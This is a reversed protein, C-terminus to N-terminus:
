PLPLTLKDAAGYLYRYFALNEQVLELYLRTEAFDVMELMLDPDGGSAELWRAANGPGGNYAALTAPAHGDFRELQTRLYHAGFRLSVEPRKLDEYDFDNMGLERAIADATPPIVQTLGIAGAPSVADTQFFSEQRVVSLLLFPSVSSAQAAESALRSYRSPYVLRLLAAPADEQGGRISMAALATTRVLGFGGAARAIRYLRWASTEGDILAQLEAAGEDLLGARLLEMLRPWEPSAEFEEAAFPDEEGFRETLWAELGAWDPGAPVLEPPDPGVAAGDLVARARLGFYDHPALDVASQLHAAASQPDGLLRAARAMWYHARAQKRPIANTELHQGWINYAEPALGQRYRVLGARFLGDAAYESGPAAAAIASFHEFAEELLGAQEFVLARDWYADDLLRGATGRLLNIAEGYEHLAQEPDGARESLIGLYYRAEGRLVPEPSSLLGQYHATAEQNRRHRFLVYAREAPTIETAHPLAELARGHWPYERVLATVAEQRTAEDGARGAAESLEWLAQAREAPSPAGQVAARLSEIAGQADEGAEQYRALSRLADTKIRAPLGPALAAALHEQAAKPDGTRAYVEALALRAYPLAPGQLEIYRELAQAAPSNRGAEMEAYGLLLLARREAEAGPGTDLFVHLNQSASRAEGQEYQLRALRWIGEQREEPTGRLVAASYIQAAGDLDGDRYLQEAEPLDVQVHSPAPTLAPEPVATAAPSAPDGACGSAALLLLPLLAVLTACAKRATL